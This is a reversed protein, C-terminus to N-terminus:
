CAPPAFITRDFHLAAPDIYIIANRMIETLAAPFLGGFYVTNAIASLVAWILHLFPAIGAVGLVFGLMLLPIPKVHAWNLIPIGKARYSVPM